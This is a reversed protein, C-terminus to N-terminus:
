AVPTRMDYREVCDALKRVPATQFGNGGRAERVGIGVGETM